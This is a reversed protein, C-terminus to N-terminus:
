TKAQRQARRESDKCGSNSLVAHFLKKYLSVTALHVHGVAFYHSRHHTHSSVLRAFGQILRIGNEQISTGYPIIGFLFDDVPQFSQMSQSPLAPMQNDAHQATHGFPHLFLQYLIVMHIYHCAGVSIQGQGVQYGLHLQPMLGDVHFQGHRFSILIHNRLTHAARMNGTKDTDHAAAVIKAMITNHRVRTSPFAAPIHFADQILHPIQFLAPILFDRKQPLIHIRVEMLPGVSLSNRKRFKQPQHCVLGVPHAHTEGSGMRLVHAVVRQTDNLFFGIHAPM